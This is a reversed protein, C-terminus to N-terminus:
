RPHPSHRRAARDAGRRCRCLRPIVESKWSAFSRRPQAVARVRGGSGPVCVVSGRASEHRAPAILSSPCPRPPWGRRRVMPADHLAAQVTATGSATLAVDCSALVADTEGEVVSMRPSGATRFLEDGLNPARAVVFQATPIQGQIAMAARVLDPLIRAVENPRSGPLLAVTPADSRLGLRSLFVDRPASVQALDVLPHGVFEVPVGADRYLQEEFPFIVLMRDTFARLARVRGPRWAWIQPSIYYIVRIGLKKIRRALPFNFDPFDIAVFAAPRDRRASAVLRRLVGISKPVKALAETLGTVALGRYDDLLQGGAASFRPGGLGAVSLNPVLARLERTLAGAYLDGSPEGCSLLVRDSL